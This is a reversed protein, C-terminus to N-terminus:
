EGKVKRKGVEPCGYHTCVGFRANIPMGCGVCCAPRFIADIERNCQEQLEKRIARIEKEKM